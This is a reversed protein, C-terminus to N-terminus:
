RTKSHIVLLLGDKISVEASENTMVNSIGRSYGFLLEENALKYQLNTTTVHKVNGQLPILSILDGIKGNLQITSRTVKIEQDGEIFTVNIGKQELYSLAFINTIFHDIRSGLLGFVVIHKYGKEIAYNMALESDTEDKEKPFRIWEIPFKKLKKQLIESLSDFDGIIVHPIIKLKFAHQAGGDACVILKADKCYKKAHSMDSLDGNYFIIAQKMTNVSHQQTRITYVM